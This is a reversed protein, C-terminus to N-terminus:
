CTCYWWTLQWRPCVCYSVGRTCDLHYRQHQSDDSERIYVMSCEKCEVPMSVPNKQGMSLTLQHTTTTPPTPKASKLLHRTTNSKTIRTSHKHLPASSTSADSHEKIKLKKQTPRTTSPFFFTIKSHAASSFKICGEYGVTWEGHDDHTFTNLSIAELEAPISHFPYFLINSFDLRVPPSPAHVPVFM